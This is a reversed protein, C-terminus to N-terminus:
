RRDRDIGFRRIWRYLQTRDKGMQRAVEAVNGDNADLMAVLERKLATEDPSLEAPPTARAAAVLAVGPRDDDPARAPSGAPPLSPTVLEPLHPLDIPDRGALTVAMALVRELERVNRPWAHEVLALAAAPSFRARQGDPQRLLLSRVLLGLDGRRDRLPPLHITAGLLRAHLDERFTGAAVMAALDRHTAACLRFDVSVPMSDGVPVVEREQLARLLAAQAAPPLEAIEDLFLTGRDAARVHGPRDTLAGSFAGKRHGFLESEVLTGAIAGCNVAVFAGRRQSLEHLARAMVEKGTGTEGLVLAPLGSTS